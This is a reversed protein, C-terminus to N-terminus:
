LMDVADVDVIVRFSRNHQFEKAQLLHQLVGLTQKVRQTKLMIHYRYVQKRRAIPATVPGLVRYGARKVANLRESLLDAREAGLRLSTAELALLIIHCFPPFNLAERESIEDRYFDLFDHRAAFTIVPETPNLTQILVHGAIVGRGARGGVQTLLQFTRERARFDPIELATDASVVAVLSVQPFDFGKSIMQTGLLIKAEGSSFRRFIAEFSGKRRTSDLDMRVLGADPFHSRLEEELRETGIGGYTFLNSNCKPCRDPYREQHGCTHCVVKNAAKHYVLTIDCNRCSLKEGCDYCRVSPAFGRRNLLVMVQEDRGLSQNIAELLDPGLHSFDNRQFQARRDVITATPMPRSDIREPLTLLTYKSQSANYYSEISPTASGLVIPINELKARMIAVDRAHYRPAPSGQKLSQDHEEDVVIVRLDPLESFVASRAGLVVKIEGNRSKQWVNLREGSSLRSHHLGLASGFSSSLRAHLAQSLGIEPVIILAQGGAAIARKAAELYVETKGSGTVGHLLFTEFGGRDIAATIADAAKRQAESLLIQRPPTNDTIEEGQHTSKDSPEETAAKTDWRFEGLRLALLTEAKLDADELAKASLKRKRGLIAALATATPDGDSVLAALKGRDTIWFQQRIRGSLASPLFARLVEGLSAFYYSSVFEALKLLKASIIPEADPFEVVAKTSGGYSGGVGVIVGLQQQRGLPVIARKGVVDDHSLAPPLHYSLQKPLGSM